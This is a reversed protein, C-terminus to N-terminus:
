RATSRLADLNALLRSALARDADHQARRSIAEIWFDVAPDNSGVDILPRRTLTAATAAYYVVDAGPPGAGVEEWDFLVRRRGIRRLNWPALDGHMPAYGPPCEVLPALVASIESAVVGIPADLDPRHIRPPLPATAIWEWAQAIGVGMAVPATFTTPRGADVAALVTAERRFAGRDPQARVFAVPERGRVALFAFGPRSVQQREAIAIADIAGVSRGVADFVARWEERDLLAPTARRGPLMRGAGVSALVWGAAQAIRTTRRSPGFM